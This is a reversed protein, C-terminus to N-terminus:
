RRSEQSDKPVDLAVADEDAGDGSPGIKWASSGSGDAPEGSSGGRGARDLSAASRVFAFRALLARPLFATPQRSVIQNDSAPTWYRM